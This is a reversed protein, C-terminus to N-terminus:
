GEKNANEIIQNITALIVKKDNESLDGYKKFLTRGLEEKVMQQMNFREVDDYTLKAVVKSNSDNDLLYDISVNFKNAIKKLTEHDPQAINNCWKSVAQGTIGLENALSAQSIDNDDLLAQLKEGFM